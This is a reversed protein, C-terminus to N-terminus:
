CESLMKRSGEAQLMVVHARQTQLKRSSDTEGRLLRSLFDWFPVQPIGGRCLIDRYLDGAGELPAICTLHPPQTAAIFWQVIGLWSNGVLAVKGNCWPLSALHEVTDYGDNAEVEGFHSNNGV